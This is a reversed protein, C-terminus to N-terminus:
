LIERVIITFQYQIHLTWYHNEFNSIYYCHLLFSSTVFIILITLFFWKLVESYGLRVLTGYIQYGLSVDITGSYNIIWTCLCLNCVLKYLSANMAGIQTVKKNLIHTM